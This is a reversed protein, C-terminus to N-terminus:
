AATDVTRTDNDTEQRRSFYWSLFFTTTTICKCVLLVGLLVQALGAHDYELCFGKKDCRTDWLICTKDILAGLIIPGPIAGFLKLLDQQLGLAYSQQGTPVSRLTVILAPTDNLYMTLTIAALMLLFLVLQLGCDVQCVGKEVKGIPDAKSKVCACSEYFSSTKNLNEIQACGAHCPSFYTLPGGCVPDFRAGTCNLAQNCKSDLQVSSSSSDLYPTNVGAIQITDCKIYLLCTCVLDICAVIFCMKAAGTMNLKLRKNIYAGPMNGLLVAPVIVLGYLLAAREAPQYFQAELIKPGFATVSTIIFNKMCVSITIFVFPLRSFVLKTAKPLDKLRTYGVVDVTSDENAGREREAEERRKNTLPFEKPFAFLWFSWFVAIGGFIAFGLWWNGVWHTDQPTLSTQVGFEVFLSRFVSTLAMGVAAGLIGLAAFIGLYMPSGEKKVNEDVYPVGLAYLPTSGTGVVIMGLIFLAYYLNNGGTKENCDTKGGFNTANGACLMSHSSTANSDIFVGAQYPSSIFHPLTFIFFGAAMIFLGWGCFVPKKRSGGVYGVLPTLILAAISNSSLIM